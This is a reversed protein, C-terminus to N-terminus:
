LKKHCYQKYPKLFSLYKVALLNSFVATGFACLGPLMLKSLHRMSRDCMLASRLIKLHFGESGYSSM